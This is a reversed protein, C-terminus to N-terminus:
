TNRWVIREAAPVSPGAAARRALRLEGLADEALLTRAIERKVPMPAAKWQADVDGAPDILGRLSSPKSLEDVHRSAEDLRAQIAPEARAALTASLAGSGVQDALDDLERGIRAVVERAEALADSDSDDPIIRELNKPNKLFRLMAAEAVRDLDDANILVHGFGHCQYHRIGEARRYTAALPRGCVDCRAIMSLLHVGRGPRSTRRAPDSLRHHVAHFMEDTVLAPWIADYRVTTGQTRESRSKAGPTHTRVGRYTDALLMPRLTESTIPRGRRGVMGRAALDRAVSKLSHGAAVREFAEVMLAAEVPEPEWGILKGTKPDHAAEYGFPAQGHPKGDRANAAAARGVMISIKESDYEADVASELLTKRDRARSPDYIREDTTVGIRKGKARCLDLLEVWEGVKRSGRSAIWLWLGDADLRGHEIDAILKPFDDRSKSAYRSASGVDTYPRSHLAVGLDAAATLNEHHQEDNSRERGSQDFSVRLYERFIPLDSTM